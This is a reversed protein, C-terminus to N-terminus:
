EQRMQEACGHGHERDCGGDCHDHSAGEHYWEVDANGGATVAVQVIYIYIYIYMYAFLCDDIFM